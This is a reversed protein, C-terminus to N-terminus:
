KPSLYPIKIIYSLKFINQGFPLDLELLGFVMTLVLILVCLVWKTSIVHSLAFAMGGLKEFM